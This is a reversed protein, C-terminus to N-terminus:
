ARFIQRSPGCFTRQELATSRRLAADLSQKNIQAPTHNPLPRRWCGEDQYVKKLREVIELFSLVELRVSVMGKCKLAKGTVISRENGLLRARRMNTDISYM